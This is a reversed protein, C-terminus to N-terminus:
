RFGFARDLKVKSKLRPRGYLYRRASQRTACLGHGDGFAARVRVWLGGCDAFSHGLGLGVVWAKVGGEGGYLRIGSTGRARHQRPAGQTGCFQPGLHLVKM